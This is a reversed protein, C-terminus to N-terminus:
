GAQTDAAQHMLAKGVALADRRIPEFRLAVLEGDRALVKGAGVADPHFAQHGRRRARDGRSHRHRAGGRIGIDRAAAFATEPRLCMDVMTTTGSL